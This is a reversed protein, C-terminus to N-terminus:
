EFIKNFEIVKSGKNYGNKIFFNITKPNNAYVYTLVGRLKRKKCEQEFYNVLQKGVGKNRYEKKVAILHAIAFNGAMREGMRFGVIEKKDQAVVFIQKEKIINELWHIPPVKGTPTRLEPTKSLEYCQKVDKLTAERIKIV